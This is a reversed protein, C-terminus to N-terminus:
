YKMVPDKLYFIRPSGMWLVVSSRRREFAEEGGAEREARGQIGTQNPVEWTQEGIMCVYM